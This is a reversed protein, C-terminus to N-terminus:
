EVSLLFGPIEQCFICINFRVSVYQHKMFCKINKQIYLFSRFYQLNYSLMESNNLAKLIMEFSKPTLSRLCEPVNYLM